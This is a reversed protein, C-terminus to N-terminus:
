ARDGPDGASGGDGMGVYLRGDPGFQLQGGNHNDYPQDVRLIVKRTAPDAVDPDAASAAYRVVRTDGDLNTYDVYFRGNDAYRPHFAMSLLGREGGTSVLASLDLFPRPLVGGDKVVRIRGTKEVVFLRRTDGPPSAVYLPQDYAGPIRALAVAPPQTASAAVPAPVAPPADSTATGSLAALSVALAAAGLLFVIARRVNM